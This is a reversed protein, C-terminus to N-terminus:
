GAERFLEHTKSERKKNIDIKMKYFELIPDDSAKPFVDGIRDYSFSINKKNELKVIEAGTFLGAAEIKVESEGLELLKGYYIIPLDNPHVNIEIFIEKNLYNSHKSILELKKMKGFTAKLNGAIEHFAAAKEHPTTASQLRKLSKDSAELKRDINSTIIPKQVIKSEQKGCGVFFLAAYTTLHAIQSTRM